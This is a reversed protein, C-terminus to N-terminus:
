RAQGAQRHLSNDRNRVQIALLALLVIMVLGLVILGLRDLVTYHFHLIGLLTHAVLAGSVLALRHLDSWYPTRSWRHVLLAVVAVLALAGLMPVLVLLGRTFAPVVRGLEILLALCAFGAIGSILLTMWPPPVDFQQPSQSMKRPLVGLAVVTLVLVALTALGLLVPPAWYGPALLTHAGLMTLLVGFVYFLATVILGFWGLYPTSRRSPFLLETLLIPITVSWVAHYILMAEVYVGNIGFIRAGWHSASYLTPNFFSQLALGEEVIGYASGLLLISIWGRGSRCVLERILLAGAGYIPLEFLLAIPQTIPTSGLLLEAVVPAMLILVIVPLFRRM